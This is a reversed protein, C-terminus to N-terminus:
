HGVLLMILVLVLLVGSFVGSGILGYLLNRATAKLAKQEQDIKSLRTEADRVRQDVNNATRLTDRQERQLATLQEQQKGLATQIATINSTAQSVQPLAQQVLQWQGPDVGHPHTQTGSRGLAANIASDVIQQIQSTGLNGPGIYGAVSTVGVDVGTQPRYMGYDNPYYTNSRSFGDPAFGTRQLEAQFEREMSAINDHVTQAFAADGMTDKDLVLMTRLKAPPLALGDIDRQRENWKRGSRFLTFAKVPWHAQVESIFRIAEPLGFYFPDIYIFDSGEAQYYADTLTEATGFTQIVRNNLDPRLLLQALRSAPIENDVILARYGVRASVASEQRESFCVSHLGYHHSPM